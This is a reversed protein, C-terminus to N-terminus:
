SVCFGVFIHFGGTGYREIDYCCLFWMPRHGPSLSLSPSFQTNVIMPRLAGSM